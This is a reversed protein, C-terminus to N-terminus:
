GVIFLAEGSFQAHRDHIREGIVVFEFDVIFSCGVFLRYDVHGAVAEEGEGANGVRCRGAFVDDAFDIRVEVNGNIFVADRGSFDAADFSSGEVEGSGVGDAVEDVVEGVLLDFVPCAIVVAEHEVFVFRSFEGEGCFDNFWLASAGHLDIRGFRAHLEIRVVPSVAVFSLMAGGESTAGREAKFRLVEGVTRVAGVEGRDNQFGSLDIRLFGDVLESDFSVGIFCQGESGGVFCILRLDISRKNEGSLFFVFDFRM